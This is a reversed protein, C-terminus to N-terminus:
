FGFASSRLGLRRRLWYWLLTQRVILSTGTAVAAGNAGFRPILIANLLVNLGLAIGVGVLSLREQGVMNLITGLSGFAVVM